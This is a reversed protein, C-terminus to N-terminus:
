VVNHRDLLNILQSNGKWGFKEAMERANATDIGCQDKYKLFVKVVPVMGYFCARAFATIKTPIPDKCLTPVRYKKVNFDMQQRCQESSLLLEVISSIKMM